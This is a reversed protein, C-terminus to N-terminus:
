FRQGFRRGGPDAVTSPTLPTPSAPAAPTTPRQPLSRQGFPRVDDDDSAPSVQGTLPAEPAPLPVRLKRLHDAFLWGDAGNSSARVRYRTDTVGGPRWAVVEVEIGDALRVSSEIKGSEDVLVVTGSGPCNVFVHQGVAIVPM